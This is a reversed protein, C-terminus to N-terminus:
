KKCVHLCIQLWGLVEIDEGTVISLSERESSCCQTKAVIWNLSVAWKGFKGECAGPLCMIAGLNQEKVNQPLM